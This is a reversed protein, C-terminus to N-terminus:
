RLELGALPPVQEPFHRHALMASRLRDKDPVSCPNVTPVMKGLQCGTAMTICSFM